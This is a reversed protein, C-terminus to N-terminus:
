WIERRLAFDNIQGLAKDKKPRIKLKNCIARGGPNGTSVSVDAPLLTYKCCRIQLFIAMIIVIIIIIFLLVLLVTM